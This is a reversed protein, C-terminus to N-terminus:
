KRYNAKSQASLTKKKKSLKRILVVKPKIVRVARAEAEVVIANPLTVSEVVARLQEVSAGGSYLGLSMGQVKHGVTREIDERRLGARDAKTIFWRRWSHFNVRSRRHGELLEDVGCSIRYTQFRKTFPMSRENGWGGSSNAEHILFEDQAKGACRVRVTEKLASHIPVKRIGANTKSRRVNFVDGSCDAARLQFIEEKRLGSLAAIGMVDRMMRDADGSFLRVVEEDTFPREVEDPLAQVKPLSLGDWPNGEIAHGHNLLWKWYTRMTSLQKNATKPNVQKNSFEEIKFNGALRNTVEDVVLTMGKAEMWIELKRLASKHDAVTRPSFRKEAMWTEFHQRLPTSGNSAQWLTDGAAKGRQVEVEMSRELVEVSIAAARNDEGVSFAQEIRRSFAAAEAVLSTDFSVGKAAKTKVRASDIQAKLEDVVKHRKRQAESLSSTQLTKVISTRKGFAPRLTPPIAVRAYYTKHRKLLHKLDSAMDM